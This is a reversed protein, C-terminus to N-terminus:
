RGQAAKTLRTIGVIEGTGYCRKWSGSRRNAVHALRSAHSAQPDVGYEAVSRGRKDLRSQQEAKAIQWLIAM